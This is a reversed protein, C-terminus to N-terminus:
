AASMGAQTHVFVRRKIPAGKLGTLRHLFGEIAPPENLRMGDALKLDNADHKIPLLLLECPDNLQLVNTYSVIQTQLKVGVQIMSLGALVAWDRRANEVSWEAFPPIWDLHMDAEWALELRLPENGGSRERERAVLDDYDPLQARLATFVDLLIQSRSFARLTATREGSPRPLDIISDFVPVQVRLQEPIQGGLESWLQWCWDLMRTRERGMFVFVLSRNKGGRTQEQIWRFEKTQKMRGLINRRSSITQTDSSSPHQADAQEIKRIEDRMTVTDLCLAFSLDRRSFVSFQTVNAVLPIAFCLRKSKRFTRGIPTSQLNDAVTAHASTDIKGMGQLARGM